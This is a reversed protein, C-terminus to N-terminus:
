AQAQSLHQRMGCDLYCTIKPAMNGDLTVTGRDTHEQQDFTPTKLGKAATYVNDYEFREAGYSTLRPGCGLKPHDSMLTGEDCLGREGGGPV